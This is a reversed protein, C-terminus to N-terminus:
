RPPQWTRLNVVRVRLGPAQQMIRPFHGDVVGARAAAAWDPGDWGLSKLLVLEHAHAVIAARVALSDSTADWLHPLRASQSEDDQSFALGDLISLRGADLPTAVVRAEPLLSALFHANVQLMRLALWHAAEEGLQHTRDLDRIVNAAAGGGPVLIIREHPEQELWNSLRACLDPLEFLSGGVKVIKAASM